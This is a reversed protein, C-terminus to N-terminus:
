AHEKQGPCRQDPTKERCEARHQQLEQARCLSLCVGGGTQGAGGRREAIPVRARKMDRKEKILFLSLYVQAGAVRYLGRTVTAPQM